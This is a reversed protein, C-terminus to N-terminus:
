GNNLRRFGFYSICAADALDQVKFDENLWKVEAFEKIQPKGANGSGLVDKKWTKNDVLSYPIRNRYSIFKVADVVSAIALTTKPNQLYIPTEIFVMAPVLKEIKIESIYNDFLDFLERAREDTNKSYSELLKPIFKSEGLIVSAISKSSCDCGMVLM